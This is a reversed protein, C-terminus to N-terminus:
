CTRSSKSWIIFTISRESFYNQVCCYLPCSQLIFDIKNWTASVLSAPTQRAMLAIPRCAASQHYHYVLRTLLLSSAYPFHQYDDNDLARTVPSGVPTTTHLIKLNEHSCEPSTFTSKVSRFCLQLKAQKTMLAAASAGFLCSSPISAVVSQENGFNLCFRMLLRSNRCGKLSCFVARIEDYNHCYSGGGTVWTITLGILLRHCTSRCKSEKVPQCRWPLFYGSDQCTRM